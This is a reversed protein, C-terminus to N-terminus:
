GRVRISVTFTVILPEGALYQLNEPMPPFPSAKRMAELASSNLRSDTSDMVDAQSLKGAKDLTFRVTVKQVGTVGEPYKWVSKARQEILKMYSTYDAESKGQLGSRGGGGTGKGTGGGSIGSGSQSGGPVGYPGAGSGTGKLAGPLQLGEKLAKIGAENGTGRLATLSKQKDESSAAGALAKVSEKVPLQVLSDPSTERVAIPQAHGAEALVKPAPLAAVQPTSAPEEKPAAAELSGADLKGTRQRPPIPTGHKPLARPGGSGHASGISKDLSNGTGVDLLQIPVPKNEPIVPFSGVGLALFLAIFHLAASPLLFPSRFLSYLSLEATSNFIKKAM